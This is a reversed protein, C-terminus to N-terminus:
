SLVLTCPVKEHGEWVIRWAQELNVHKQHIREFPLKLNEDMEAFWVNQFGVREQKLVCRLFPHSMSLRDLAGRLTADEPVPGSFLTVVTIRMAGHFNLSADAMTAEVPALQLRQRHTPEVKHRRKYPVVTGLALEKRNERFNVFLKYVIAATVFALAPGYGRFDPFDMVTIQNPEKPPHHGEGGLRAGRGLDLATLTNHARFDTEVNLHIVFCGVFCLQVVRSFCLWCQRPQLKGLTCASKVSSTTMTAQLAWRRQAELRIRFGGLVALLGLDLSVCLAGCVRCSWVDDLLEMIEHM